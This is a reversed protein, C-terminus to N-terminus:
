KKEKNIKDKPVEFSLGSFPDYYNELKRNKFKLLLTNYIKILTKM